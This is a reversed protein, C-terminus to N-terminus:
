KQNAIRQDNRLQTLIEVLAIVYQGIQFSFLTIERPSLGKMPISSVSRLMSNTNKTDIFAKSKHFEKLM